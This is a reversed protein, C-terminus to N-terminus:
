LVRQALWRKWSEVTGNFVNLDIQTDVGKSLGTGSYQWFAFDRDPYRGNPHEAVSRLWFSYDTFQGKLNDEYFDPATYIIPRVGYHDEIMSLWVRMKALVKARPLKGPCTRKNGHWEVDLVPPLSGKERPVHRIFWNAQEEASRCWYFFHYAGTPIGAAKANKWNQDFLRDVHKGGETAKIFAFNAGQKRLTPWDIERQWHSVDVGHVAFKQPAAKGFNVPHADRFKEAYVTMDAFRSGRQGGTPKDPRMAALALTEPQRVQAPQAVPAKDVVPSPMISATTEGSPVLAKPDLTDSSSCGSVAAAVLFAVCVPRVFRM